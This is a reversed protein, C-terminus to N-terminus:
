RLNSYLLKYSTYSNFLQCALVTMVQCKEHAVAFQHKQQALFVLLAFLVNKSWCFPPPFQWLNTIILPVVICDIDIEWHDRKDYIALLPGILLVVGLDNVVPREMRCVIDGGFDSDSCAPLTLQM